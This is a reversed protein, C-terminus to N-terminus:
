LKFTIKIIFKIFNTSNYIPVRPIEYPQDNKVAWKSKQYLFALKYNNNKLAKKYNDNTIGFPYAYYSYKDKGLKLDKNYIEYDNSYALDMNHLNTGHYMVNINKELKLKDLEEKTMYGDKDIMGEIIFVTAKLNYKKLIPVVTNYFSSTGDDFTLVVSKKIKRKNNKWSFFEDLSLTDYKNKAIYEMQKTFKRISIDTDNSPNDLVSHYALIPVGTNVVYIRYIIFAMLMLVIVSDIIYILKKKM